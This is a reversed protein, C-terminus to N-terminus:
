SLLDTPLTLRKRRQPNVRDQIVDVTGVNGSRSTTPSGITLTPLTAAATVPQAAGAPPEPRVTIMLALWAGPNQNFTAEVPGAVQQIRYEDLDGNVLSLATYGSGPSANNFVWAYGFIVEGDVSTTKVGSSVASGTGTAFSIQDVPSTKAIGTWESVHIELASTTSPTITFTDSGGGIASTVYWVYMSVDQAPDVIPGVAPTFVNGLSDTLTLSNSPRACTGTVILFDGSRVNAMSVSLSATANERGFVAKQVLAPGGSTAVFDVGTANGGSVTVTRSAPSFMYGPNSPVVTYSGNPVGVFNFHGSTDATVVTSIAGSLTLTAGAGESLPSVAGSISYTQTAQGGGAMDAQIETQSLARNYIRVEDILGAFYEGWVANGGIHLPNTSTRLTGTLAKSAVQTGNVFLALAAGNYTAALHTWSNVPLAGSGLVGTSVSGVRGWANPRTGDSAYLAYSLEGPVDKMVVTRYGTLASPNVWAELTMGTTLDLSDADAINVISNTGNFSLASGFRGSAAWSAGSITGNNLNGSSDAATAGTGEDFRYYAVLGSPAANSVTVAAAASTTTNGAADRARASVAHAGNPVTGSTWDLTYPATMDEAGVPLGDLLFQVGAVGVNDSATATFTTVGSLTTGASPSTLSVTPPTVDSGAVASAQNSAPGVNGAADQATVLYYYTGASLGSDVYNLSTVQAVRNAASPTFGSTLSRYVNYKTVGVNDSAASWSLSVTGVGGVAAASAPASPPTTDEYGAPLRVFPAISPVGKSNVIFLMYTGPPALNANAPAQVTLGGATQQFALPVLRQDMNFSHTVAGNRILSVSAIDAADPTGVFFGNSYNITAPASSVTPRAGKFLYAPSYFEANFQAISNFYNHGSGAVVVRGDPLLLATSHYLRPIQESALTTWTKTVPSWMEAALVGHAENVGGIDTSGGTALVNGDPLVTLNHHTRPNAMSATQQWAPSPQTMDLVYTNPSSPTSGGNDIPPSLYSAGSKMIKGPAYMVASGADLPTADVVSWTETTLDLAYTAMPSEDSGAALVRGDTLVFMFPYNPIVQNATNLQRWTNTLPNYIEPIPIYSITSVDSGATVLAQGNPLTTVSPYWRRYAMDTLRTWTNTDPDFMNAMSVGIFGNSDCEHGGVVLVRGDALVTPASCFLDRQHLVTESPMPTFTNTAVDWVTVSVAGICAPGGDWMLIKGNKLLVTHMDVIPTNVVAGWQGVVAPDATVNSVTLTRAASTTANGAADRARATLTHPGNGAARSDWTISYPATTDEAGVAAGDLLFQVGVVGVNDSASASLTVSAGSVTANDAPATLSVTPATTDTNAVNVSVQSSTAANGAADRAIVRVRVTTSPSAPITWARSGTNAINTAIVNPFSAGGNTSYALDIATVGVLDSASWTITQSSGVDFSEGGVPSSLSVTPAQTDIV